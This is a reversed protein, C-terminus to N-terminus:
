SKTIGAYMWYKKESDSLKEVANTNIQVRGSSDIPQLVGSNYTNNYADRVLKVMVTNPYIVGEDAGILWGKAVKKPIYEPSSWTLLGNEDLSYGKPISNSTYSPTLVDGVLSWGTPMALKPVLVDRDLYWGQPIDSSTASAIVSSVVAKKKTLLYVAVAVAVGGGIIYGKNM